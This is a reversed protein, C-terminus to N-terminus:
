RWATVSVSADDLALVDDDEGAVGRCVLGGKEKLSSSTHGSGAIRTRISRRSWGSSAIYISERGRAIARHFGTLTRCPRAVTIPDASGPTLVEAM